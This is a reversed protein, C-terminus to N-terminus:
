RPTASARPLLAEDILQPQTAGIASELAAELEDINGEWPYDSLM